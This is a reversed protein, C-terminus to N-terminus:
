KRNLGQAPTSYYSMKLLDNINIPKAKCKFFKNYHDIYTNDVIKLKGKSDPVVHYRKGTLRHCANAKRKANRLRFSKYISNFFKVM